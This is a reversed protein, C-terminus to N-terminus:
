SSPGFYAPLALPTWTRADRSIAPPTSTAAYGDPLAVVRGAPGAIPHFTRGGDVSEVFMPVDDRELWLLLSGDPRVVAGLRDRGATPAAPLAADVRQWNGGRDTTRMVVVGSGARVFVYGTRGDRTAVAPATDGAPVGLRRSVWTRGQDHSVAVALEKTAPDLGAVWWGNAPAVGDALVPHALPPQTPIRTLRDDAVRAGYVQGHESLQLGRDGEAAGTSDVAPPRPESAGGAYDNRSQPVSVRMYSRRGDVGAASLLLSRANVPVLAVEALSAAPRDRLLNIVVPPRPPEGVAPVASIQLSCGSGDASTACVDIAAYLHAADVGALARVTAVVVSRARTAGPSPTADPPSPAPPRDPGLTVGGGPSAHLTALMVPAALALGTLVALAVVVRDRWRVRRARREVQAFQPLQTTHELYQRLGHFDPEDAM